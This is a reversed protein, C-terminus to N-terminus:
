FLMTQPKFTDVDNQRMKPMNLPFARYGQLKLNNYGVRLQDVPASSVGLVPVTTVRFRQLM